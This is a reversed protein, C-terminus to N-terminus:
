KSVDLELSAPRQRTVRGLWSGAAMSTVVAIIILTSFLQEDIIGAEFATTALVIGPGGRANMTIALDLAGQRTEHAGLAGLYVGAFKVICSYALLAVTFVIAVDAVLDLRLGVTAFYIPIFLALAVGSIQERAVAAREDTVASVMLGAVLAGFMPVVDLVICLGSLTFIVLLQFAVHSRRRLVNWRTGAMAAYTGPGLRIAAALVCVTAAAHWGAAAPTSAQLGLAGPLGYLEAGSGVYGLAIALLVYVVVDEVVAVSLVVKAFRSEIIGLDLMIRSVVPISTVALALAVIIAFAAGDGARGMFSDLDALQTLAVGALLPVVIGTTAIWSVARALSRDVLTRMQAGALFMLLLLGVQSLFGLLPMTIGAAPFLWDYADPWARALLTPGLVLGGILEGIVAPQRRWVFVFGFFHASVLLVGIAALAHALQDTTLAM